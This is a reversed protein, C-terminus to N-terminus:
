VRISRGVRLFVSIEVTWVASRARRRWYSTRSRSMSSSFLTRERSWNRAISEWSSRLGSAAIRVDDCSM